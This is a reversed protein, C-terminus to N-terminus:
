LDNEKQTNNDKKQGEILLSELKERMDPSKLAEQVKYELPTLNDIKGEWWTSPLQNIAELIIDNLNVEKINRKKVEAQFLSLPHDPLTSLVLKTKIDKITKDEAKKEKVEKKVVKKDEQPIQIDNENETKSDM